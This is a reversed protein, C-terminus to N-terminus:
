DKKLSKLILENAKFVNFFNDNQDFGDFGAILVNKSKSIKTILMLSSFLHNIENQSKNEFRLSYFNKNKSKVTDLPFIYNINKKTPQINSLDSGM